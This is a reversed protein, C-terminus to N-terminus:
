SVSRWRVRCGADTGSLDYPNRSCLRRCERQIQGPLINEGDAGASLFTHRGSQDQWQFQVPVGAKDSCFVGCDPIKGDKQSQSRSWEDPGHVRDRNETKKQLSPRAPPKDPINEIYGAFDSLRNWNQCRRVDPNHRVSHGSYFGTNNKHFIGHSEPHSGASM